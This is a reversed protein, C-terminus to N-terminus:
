HKFHRYGTTVMAMGFKDAMDISAQDNKSGGPHIVATVGAAGAIEVCDPFPFFAESALVAGKLSFGFNKAKEIAQKLADVRSTQGCGMALLTRGKVLAVSNSKLHKVAVAAVLLDAIEKETPKRKTVVKLDKETEIHTDRDQVLFGGFSSRIEHGWKALAERPLCKLIRCDKKEKLIELAKESFDPAIIVEVFLKQGRILAAIDEGIERNAALVGGFVSVPDAEYAAKYAELLKGEERVALGCTNMHKVIAFTPEKFDYVIAVAAETDLLNNYSLEKGHLQTFSKELDGVFTGKQHPNEGYRLSMGQFYERIAFDYSSTRAFAEGALKKREELTTEIKIHKYQDRSSIVVVDNYNKAAARILSVGGIDITEIEPKEEFPYLDVIVLDIDEIKYEKKEKQDEANDRRNLIGGFIKPHLTKVRGGFVSPFGTLNEVETVEVGLKKIFEATGGTSIIKVGHKQLLRIVEELGEKNFVSILATKVKKNM